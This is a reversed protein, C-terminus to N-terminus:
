ELRVDLTNSLGSITLLTGSDALDLCGAATCTIAGTPSSTGSMAVVHFEVETRLNVVARLDGTVPDVAAKATALVECPGALAVLAVYVEDTAPLGTVTGRVTVNNVPTPAPGGYGTTVITRLLDLEIPVGGAAGCTALRAGAHLAPLPLNANSTDLSSNSCGLVLATGLAALVVAMLRRRYFTM